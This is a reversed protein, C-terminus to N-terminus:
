KSCVQFTGKERRDKWMSNVIILYRQLVRLSITNRNCGKGIAAMIGMLDEDAFCHHFRPNVRNSLDDVHHSLYHCKPRIKWQHKKERVAEDALWQLSSLFM